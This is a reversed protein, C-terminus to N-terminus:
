IKFLTKIKYFFLLSFKNLSGDYKDFVAYHIILIISLQLFTNSKTHLITKM